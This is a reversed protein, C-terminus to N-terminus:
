TIISGLKPIKRLLWSSGLSLLVAAATVAPVGLVPPIVLPDLGLWTMLWLIFPHVLYIGFSYRSLTAIVTCGPKETKSRRGLQQLLLYVAASQAAVNWTLYQALTEDGTGATRSACVVAATSFVTGVLGLLYCVLRKGRTLMHEKCYWGLVYYGTYGLPYLFQMNELVGKFVVGAMPLQALAPLLLQFVFWLLLFYRCKKEDAAIPRLLPTALYLGVIAFLFWMHYEGTFFEVVIWKWGGALDDTRVVNVATYVCSWFLFALILRPIKRTFMARPDTQRAPDLNFRGSIMFFLPVCFKCPVDWLTLVLWEASQVDISRWRQACTHIMVVAVAAVARMLDYEYERGTRKQLETM